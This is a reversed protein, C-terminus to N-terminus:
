DFSLGFYTPAPVAERLPRFMAFPVDNGPTRFTGIDYGLAALIGPAAARNGLLELGFGDEEALLFDAGAYLQAGAALYEVAGNEQVVGGKPLYRRRLAAYESPLVQRM